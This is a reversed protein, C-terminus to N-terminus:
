KKVTIFQNYGMKDYAGLNPISPMAKGNLYSVAGTPILRKQSTRGKFNADEYELMAFNKFYPVITFDANLMATNELMIESMAVIKNGLKPQSFLQSVVVHNQLATQELSKIKLEFLSNEAGIQIMGENIIKEELEILCAFLFKNGLQYDTKSYFAGDITKKHELGIGVHHHHRFVGKKTKTDFEFAEIDKISLENKHIYNYWFNGNALKQSSAKKVDYNKLFCDEGITALEYYNVGEDSVEIDLPTQFYADNLDSSVIFMQSLNKIIGLNANTEFDKSSATGILKKLAEPNNSYKGNKHVHMLGKQEAIFLRIAGLLQTNQPFYESIAVYDDSFTKNNGFFFNKLPKFTLLYKM